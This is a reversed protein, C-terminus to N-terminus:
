VRQPPRVRAFRAIAQEIRRGHRSPERKEFLRRPRSHLPGQPRMGRNGEDQVLKLANRGRPCDRRDTSLGTETLPPKDM